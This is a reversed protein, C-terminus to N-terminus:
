AQFSSEGSTCDSRCSSFSCSIRCESAANMASLSWERGLPSAVMKVEIRLALDAKRRQLSPPALSCPKDAALWNSWM